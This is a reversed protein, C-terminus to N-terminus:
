LIATTIGVGEQVGRPGRHQFGQLLGPVQQTPTQLRSLVYTRRSLECRPTDTEPSVRLLLLSWGMDAAADEEASGDSQFLVTIIM